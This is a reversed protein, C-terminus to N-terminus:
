FCTSVRSEETKVLTWRARLASTKRAHSIFGIMYGVFVGLILLSVGKVYWSVMSSVEVGGAGSKFKMAGVGKFKMAGVGKEVQATSLLKVSVHIHQKSETVKRVEIYSTDWGIWVRGSPDSDYNDYFKWGPCCMKSISDFKDRKVKTEILGFLCLNNEKRVKNVETAKKPMNIGRVNWVAIKKMMSVKFTTREQGKPRLKRNRRKRQKNRDGDYISLESHSTLQKTKVNIGSVSPSDLIGAIHLGDESSIHDTFYEKELEEESTSSTGEEQVQGRQLSYAKREETDVETVGEEEEVTIHLVEPAEFDTRVEEFYEEQQVDKEKREVVVEAIPVGDHNRQCSTQGNPANKKPTWRMNQKTQKTVHTSKVQKSNPPVNQINKGKNKPCKADSHGFIKCDANNLNGSM